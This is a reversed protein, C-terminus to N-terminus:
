LRARVEQRTAEEGGGGGWLLEEARSLMGQETSQLKCEGEPSEGVSCSKSEQILGPRNGVLRLEFTGDKRHRFFEM